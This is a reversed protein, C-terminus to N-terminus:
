GRLPDATATTKTTTEATKWCVVVLPTGWGDRVRRHTPFRASLPGPRKQRQRQKQRQMKTTMRRRLRLIQKQRQLQGQSQLQQQKNKATMKLAAFFGRM